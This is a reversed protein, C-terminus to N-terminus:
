SNPMLRDEQPDHFDATSYTSTSWTSRYSHQRGWTLGNASWGSIAPLLRVGLVASNSAISDSSSMSHLNVWEFTEISRGGHYLKLSAQAKLATLARHRSNMSTNEVTNRESRAFTSGITISISRLPVLAESFAHM